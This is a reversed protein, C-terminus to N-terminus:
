FIWGSSNQQLQSATVGELVISDGDSLSILTDYGVQQITWTTGAAKESSLDLIDESVNSRTNWYAWHFDIIHDHGGGPGFSFQDISYGGYYTRNDPSSGYLTDDGGGGDLWDVGDVGLSTGSNGGRLVNNGANGFIKEGYDSGTADISATGTLHLEEIFTRYPYHPFAYSYSVSSYVIDYGGNFYETTGDGADDIIYIDDGKGGYMNDGGTGGDLWDAGLGGDLFDSGAGGFLIDNEPFSRPYSDDGILLDDGAGGDLTDNGAQGRLIDDGGGGFLYNSANNGNIQEADASGFANIAANGQLELREVGGQLQYSVSALVLDFGEGAAEVVQDGADDVVYIDDGLGGFMLDAGAGGDLWDNGDRGALGDSGLGGFFVDDGGDVSGGDGGDLWDDGSGGDIHDAGGSGYLADNGGGGGLYNDGLNGIIREADNSGFGNIAGSGLLRLQEVGGELAFTISSLVLDVGENPREIVRDGIDDVVYSDNGVGGIMLDAGAGGDLWDDGDRGALGDAGLGGFLVDSGGDVSGGDGGDLWDDGAGGDLKDNGGHGYLADNGGGGSLYNDGLYGMIQEADNSGFIKIAGPDLVRVKEIGGALEFDVYTMLTDNGGDASERVRVAADSIVYLDDGLGGQLIDAGVLGYLTDNGAGGDQFDNGGGGDLTDAGDLGLLTDDDATGVLNDDFNTGVLLAM